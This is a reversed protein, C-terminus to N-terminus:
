EGKKIAFTKRDAFESKKAKNWNRVPALYGVVRSYIVCEQRKIITPSM